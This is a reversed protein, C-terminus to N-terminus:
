PAVESQTWTYFPTVPDMAVQGFAERWVREVDSPVIATKSADIADGTADESAPQNPSSCNLWTPDMATPEFAPTFSSLPSDLENQHSIQDLYSYLLDAMDAVLSNSVREASHLLQICMINEDGGSRSLM